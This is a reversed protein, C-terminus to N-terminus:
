REVELNREEGLDERKLAKKGLDMAYILKKIDLLAIGATIEDFVLTTKLNWPNLTRPAETPLEPGSVPLKSM